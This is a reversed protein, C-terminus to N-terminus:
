FLLNLFRISKSGREAFIASLKERTLKRFGLKLNTITM